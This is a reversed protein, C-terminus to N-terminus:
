GALRLRDVAHGGGGKREELGDRRGPEELQEGSTLEGRAGQQESRKDRVGDGPRDEGPERSCEEGHVGPIGASRLGPLMQGVGAPMPTLLSTQISPM